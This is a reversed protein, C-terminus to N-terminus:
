ASPRGSSSRNMPASNRPSPDSPTARRVRGPRFAAASPSGSSCGTRTLHPCPASFRGPILSARCADQRGSTLRSRKATGCKAVNTQRLRGIFRKPSTRTRSAATKECRQAAASSMGTGRWFSAWAAPGCCGITGTGRGFGPEWSGRTARVEAAQGPVDPSHGAAATCSALASQSSRRRPDFTM